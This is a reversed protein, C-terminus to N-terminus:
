NEENALAEKLRELLNSDANKIKRAFMISIDKQAESMKVSVNDVNVGLINTKKM